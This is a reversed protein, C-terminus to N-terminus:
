PPQEREPNPSVMPLTVRQGNEAQPPTEALIRAELADLEQVLEAGFYYALETRASRYLSGGPGLCVLERELVELAPNLVGEEWLVPFTNCVMPKVDRVDLGNDLAFKHLLCGRGQRNLFICKDDVVQTRKFHGGAYDNDPEIWDQLWDGRPIGLAAELADARSMTREIWRMDVRAGYQCCSDHCFTCSMCATFFSETWIRPDVRDIVPLGDRSAYPRSLPIM